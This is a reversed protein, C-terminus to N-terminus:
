GQPLLVTTTVSLVVVDDRNAIPIIDNHEEHIIDDSGESCLFYM